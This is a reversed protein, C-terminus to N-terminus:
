AVGVCVALSFISTKYGREKTPYCEIILRPATTTNFGCYVGNLVRGILFCWINPMIQLVVSIIQIPEAIYLTGLKGVIKQISGAIVSGFMKGVGFGLNVTGLWTDVNDPDVGMGRVLIPRGLNNMATMSFGYYFASICHIFLFFHTYCANFKVNDVHGTERIESWREKEYPITCEKSVKHKEDDELLTMSKIKKSKSDSNTRRHSSDTSDM